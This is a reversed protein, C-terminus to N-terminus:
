SVVVSTATQGLSASECPIVKKKILFQKLEDRTLLNVSFGSSFAEETYRSPNINIGKKPCITFCNYDAHYFTHLCEEESILIEHIKEGPRTGTLHWTKISSNYAEYLVEALDTIRSSRVSPIYISGGSKDRLANFILDVAEDLSLLFRTMQHHTVPLSEGRKIKQKFFPIVSGTSELVNGYRVCNAILNPSNFNLHIKEQLMKTAGYANIPKVAKDTSISLVRLKEELMNIGDAFESAALGINETGLINTQVAEFPQIECAPVQKMAAACIIIDPHFKKIARLVSTYDRIDGIFYHIDSNPFTNRHNFHKAEDRSYIGITYGHLLFRRTLTTGLSGTGGFILIRKKRM